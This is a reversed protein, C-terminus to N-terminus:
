TMLACWLLKVSKLLDVDNQAIPSSEQMLSNCVTYSAPEKLPGSFWM